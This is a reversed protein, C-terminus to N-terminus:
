LRHSLKKRLLGAQALTQLIVGSCNLLNILNLLQGSLLVPKRTGPATQCYHNKLIRYFSHASFANLFYNLFPQFIVKLIQAFLLRGIDVIHHHFHYFHRNQDGNHLAGLAVLRLRRFHEADIAIGQAFLELLMAQQLMALKNAFKNALKIKIM